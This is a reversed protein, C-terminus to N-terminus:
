SQLDEVVEDVNSYKGNTLDFVKWAQKEMLENKTAPFVIDEELVIKLSALGTAKTASLPFCLITQCEKGEM